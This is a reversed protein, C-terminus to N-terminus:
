RKYVRDRKYKIEVQKTVEVKKNKSVMFLHLYPKKSTDYVFHYSVSVPIAPVCTIKTHNKDITEVTIERILERAFMQIDKDTADEVLGRVATNTEIKAQADRYSQLKDQLETELNNLKKIELNLDDTTTNYKDETVRGKVFATYARDLQQKLDEILNPINMLKRRIEGQERQLRVSEEHTNLLQRKLDLDETYEKVIYEIYNINISKGCRDCVYACHSKVLPKMSHGCSCRILGKGYLLYKTNLKPKENNAVIANAQQWLEATVLQPYQHQYVEGQTEGKYVPNTIINRVFQTEGSVYSFQKNIKGQLKFHNYVARLSYNGTAYMAFIEKVIQAEQPHIRIYGDIDTTYGYVTRGSCTKGKAVTLQKGQRFREMKTEMEAEALINFVELVIKVETSVKGADNFLRIDPTQVILQIKHEILFDIISSVVQKRRGIRSIERVYVTSISPDSTIREKLETLGLRHEEDNKIASEHNQIILIDKENFGDNM